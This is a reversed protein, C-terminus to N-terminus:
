RRGRKRVEEDSIEACNTVVDASHGPDFDSM